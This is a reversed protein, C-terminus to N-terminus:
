REGNRKTRAQRPESSAGWPAKRRRRVALLTMLAGAAILVAIGHALGLGIALGSTVLGSAMVVALIVLKAAVVRLATRHSNRRGTTAGARPSSDGARTHLDDLSHGHHTLDWGHESM